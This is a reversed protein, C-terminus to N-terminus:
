WGDAEEERRLAEQALPEAGPWAADLRVALRGSAEGPSGLFFPRDGVHVALPQDVRQELQLVDGPELSLLERVTLRPKEWSWGCRSQPRKWAGSSGRASGPWIRCGKWRVVWAKAPSARWAQGCRSPGSPRSFCSFGSPVPGRRARQADWGVDLGILFWRSRAAVQDPGIPHVDLEHAAGGSGLAPSGPPAPPLRPPRQDRRIVRPRWSRRRGPPDQRWGRARGLPRRPNAVMLVRPWILLVAAGDVSWRYIAGGAQEWLARARRVAVPPGAVTVRVERRLWRSLVRAWEQALEEQFRLLGKWEQEGLPGYQGLPSPRIGEPGGRGPGLSVGKSRRGAGAARPGSRGM